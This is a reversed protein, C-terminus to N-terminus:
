TMSATCSVTQEGDAPRSPRRTVVDIPGARPLDGAAPLAEGWLYGQGYRCGLERLAAVEADTQVGEAVATLGFADVVALLAAAVRRQQPDSDLGTILSRDIKIIDVFKRRVYGLSSCGTGFDDIAVGVGATHLVEMTQLTQPDEGMMQTETVELLVDAAHVGHRGLCALVDDAFGPTRFTM